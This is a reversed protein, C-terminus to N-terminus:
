GESCRLIHHSYINGIFLESGFFIGISSASIEQGSNMYLTTLKKTKLNLSQVVSPSIEKDSYAHNKLSFIKPHSAIILHNEGKVSINDPLYPLSYVDEKELYNNPLIKYKTITKSLMQAVYLHGDISQVGNAFSLGTEIKKIQKGDYFSIFGRGIRTYNELMKGLHSLTGHDHTVYFREEDIAVIDNANILLDSKISKLHELRQNEFHFVEISDGTTTHHIAWIKVKDGFRKAFIGHPSIKFDSALSIPAATEQSLDILYIDGIGFEYRYPLKTSSVFMLNDVIEIDEPGEIGTIKQCTLPHDKITVFLGADVLLNGVHIALLVVPLILLYKKM